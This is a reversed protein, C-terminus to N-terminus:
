WKTRRTPAPFRRSRTTPPGGKRTRATSSPSNSGSRRATPSCGRRHPRLGRQAAGGHAGGQRRRVHPQQLRSDPRSRPRRREPAGAGGSLRADRRDTRAVATASLRGPERQRRTRQRAPGAAQRPGGDARISGSCSRTTAGCRRRPSPRGAGHHPPRGARHTRQGEPTTEAIWKTLEDQTPGRRAARHAGRGGHGHRQDVPTWALVEGVLSDKVPSVIFGSFRENLWGPHGFDWPELHGNELGWETM